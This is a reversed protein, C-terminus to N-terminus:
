RMARGRARSAPAFLQDRALGCIAVVLPHTIRREISIAYYHERLEPVRGLVRVDYQRAIEREVATPGVFVGRGDQGIVKLLATDEFEGVIRPRIGSEDLWQNLARRVPSGELPVLMPTDDLSGPFGRKKDAYQPAGFFSLGSFGLHHNYARVAGGSPAPADALVIDLSHLALMGLLNEHSDEHCVLRVPPEADLAPRLLQRVVLKPLVDAVGVRLRTQPASTGEVTDLLERGLRFIEDAYGLVVRGMETPVLRRGSRELLKEGLADELAHVQENLTTHSLRLARAAAVVSGERAVTWFYLLHHYNLWRM